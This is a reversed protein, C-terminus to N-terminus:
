ESAVPTPIVSVAKRGRLNGFEVRGAVLAFLTDDGGRGVNDGPHFRTGRQRVLIEGAKVYQGGFRKVGLRKANSDRGNRSSSAGKKHAM